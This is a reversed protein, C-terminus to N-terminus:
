QIVTSVACQIGSVDGGVSTSGSASCTFQAATPASTGANCDFHVRAFNGPPITAGISVLGINLSSANPDGDQDGASFLGNVGTLNDIKALVTPDNGTGPINVAGGPYNLMATIGSVSPFDTASYTVTVTSTVTTCTQGGSTHTPTPTPTNGATTATPSPTPGGGGTSTPTPTTGGETSTPTPTAGGETSTPVPTAGGTPTPGVSTPTPTPPNSGATSTPLPTSTPRPTPVAGLETFKYKGNSSGGFQGVSQAHIGYVWTDNGDVGDPDGIPGASTRVNTLRVVGSSLLSISSPILSGTAGPIVSSFKTCSFSLDPLSTNIEATDFFNVNASVTASLPGIEGSFKGANEKVAILIVQSDELMEPNFTQLDLFGTQSDPSLLTNDPLTTFSGTPDLGLGIADNGFAAGSAVDAMTVSGVIADDVPPSGLTAADTCSSDTEYATVTVLGRQGTLDIPTGVLNNHADRGSVSTPDVVVTDDLTLCISVDGLHDCTESWFSWHTTVQGVGSSPSVGHVNSVLLYSTHGSTADFPMLLANAPQTLSTFLDDVIAQSSTPLVAQALCLSVICAAVVRGRLHNETM